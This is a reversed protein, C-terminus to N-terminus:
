GKPLIRVAFPFHHLRRGGQYETKLAPHLKNATADVLSVAKQLSLAGDNTEAWRQAVSFLQSSFSQGKISGEGSVSACIKVLGAEATEMAREFVARSEDSREGSCDNGVAVDNDGQVSWDFILTCRPTGPNIETESLVSGDNLLIHAEPWPLDAKRFEGRGVFILLSYDVEKVHHIEALIAERKGSSSRMIEQSSWAGGLNSRLFRDWAETVSRNEAQLSDLIIVAKRTM